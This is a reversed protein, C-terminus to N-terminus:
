SSGLAPLGTRCEQRSARGSRQRQNAISAEALGLRDVEDGTIAADVDRVVLRAQVLALLADVLLQRRREVETFFFAERAATKV